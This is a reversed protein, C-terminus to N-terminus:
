EVDVLDGYLHDVRATDANGHFCADGIMQLILRFADM